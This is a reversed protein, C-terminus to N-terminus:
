SARAAPLKTATVWGAGRCPLCQPDIGQCHPCVHTPQAEWLELKAQDLCTQVKTADLHLAIASEGLRAVDRMLVDIRRCLARLRARQQFAPLVLPPLTQGADDTEKSTSGNRIQELAE